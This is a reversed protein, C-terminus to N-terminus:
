ELLTEWQFDKVCEKGMAGVVTVFVNKKENFALTIAEGLDMDSLSMDPLSLDERRRLTREDLLELFGDSTINLLRYDVRTVEPVEVVATTGIIKEHRKEDFIDLGVFHKKASGHKGTKAAESMDVIRCVHGDMLLHGNKRLSSCQVREM